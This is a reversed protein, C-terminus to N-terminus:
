GLQIKCVVSGEQQKNPDYAKRAEKLKKYTGASASVNSKIM